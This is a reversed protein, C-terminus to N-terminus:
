KMVVAKKVEGYGPTQLKCFYIGNQKAPKADAGSPRNRSDTGDWTNCKM